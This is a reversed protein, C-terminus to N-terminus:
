STEHPGFVGPEAPQPPVRPNFPPKAIWALLDEIIKDADEQSMGSDKPLQGLFTTFVNPADDAPDPQAIVPDPGSVGPAAPQSLAQPSSSLNAIWANLGEIAKDADEQSVETDKLLQDMLEPFTKTTNEAPDNQPAGPIPGYGRSTTVTSIM